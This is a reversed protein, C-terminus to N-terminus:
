IKLALLLIEGIETHITALNVLSFCRLAFQIIESAKEPLSYKEPNVIDRSATRSIHSPAIASILLLIALWGYSVTLMDDLLLM